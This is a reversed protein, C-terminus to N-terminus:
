LIFSFVTDKRKKKKLKIQVAVASSLLLLINLLKNWENREYATHYSIFIYVGFLPNLLYDCINIIYKQDPCILQM